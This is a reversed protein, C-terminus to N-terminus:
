NNTGQKKQKGQDRARELLVPAEMEDDTWILTKGDEAFRFEGFHMDSLSWSTEGWEEFLHSYVEHTRVISAFQIYDEEEVYWGLSYELTDREDEKLTRVVFCNIEEGDATLEALINGSVWTGLFREVGAGKACADVVLSCLLLALTLLIAIRKKM